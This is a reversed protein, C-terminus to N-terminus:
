TVDIDVNGNTRNEGNKGGSFRVTIDVIFVEQLRASFLKCSAVHDVAWLCLKDKRKSEAGCEKRKVDARAIEVLCDVFQLDRRLSFFKGDVAGIHTM